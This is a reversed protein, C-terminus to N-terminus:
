RAIKLIKDTRLKAEQLVFWKNVEPILRLWNLILEFIKKVKIKADHLLVYIQEAVKEGTEKFVRQQRKDMSFYVDELGDSLVNEIQKIKKKKAELIHSKKNKTTATKLLSTNDFSTTKEGVKPRQEANKIKEPTKPASEFSGKDPNFTQKLIRKEMEQAM